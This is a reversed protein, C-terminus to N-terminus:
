LSRLFYQALRVSMRSRWQRLHELKLRMRSVIREGSMHMLVTRIYDTTGKFDVPQTVSLGCRYLIPKVAEIIDGADAYQYTYAPSDKPRIEATHNKPVIPFDSQAHSLADALNPHNCLVSEEPTPTAEETM